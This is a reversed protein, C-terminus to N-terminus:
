HRSDGDDDEVGRDNGLGDDALYTVLFWRRHPTAYEETETARELRVDTLQPNQARVSDELEAHLAQGALSAGALARGEYRNWSVGEM